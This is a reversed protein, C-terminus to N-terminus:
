GHLTNAPIPISISSINELQAGHPNDRISAATPYDVDKPQSEVALPFTIEEQLNPSLFDAVLFM